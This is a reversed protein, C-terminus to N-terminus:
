PRCGQMQVRGRSSADEKVGHVPTNRPRTQPQAGVGEAPTARARVVLPVLVRVTTGEGPRSDIAVSGAHAEVVVQCVSLAVTVLEGEPSLQPADAVLNM